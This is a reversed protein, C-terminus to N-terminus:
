PQGLAGASEEKMLTQFRMSSNIQNGKQQPTATLQDLMILFPSRDLEYLFKRLNEYTGEYNASSSLLTLDESGEIPEETYTADRAQM